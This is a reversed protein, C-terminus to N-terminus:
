IAKKLESVEGEMINIRKKLERVRTKNNVANMMTGCEPCKFEYEAAIEFPVNNCEKKCSFFAYNREYEVKERFKELDKVRRELIIEAVRKTNIDWSYSYWGTKPNRTKQYRAIGHYHLRNLITRIETIKLPLKKGIEEDTIPKGKKNYVRILPLVSKGGIEGLFAHTIELGYIKNDRM